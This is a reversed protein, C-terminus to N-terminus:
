FSQSPFYLSMTAPIFCQSMLVLYNVCLFGHLLMLSPLSPSWERRGLNVASTLILLQDGPPLDNDDM